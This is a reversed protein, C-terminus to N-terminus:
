SITKHKPWHSEGHNLGKLSDAAARILETCVWFLDHSKVDRKGCLRLIYAPHYLHYIDQEESDYRFNDRATNGLTVVIKPKVLEVVGSLRPSCNEIEEPEPPRNPGAIRDTPRCAVLNTIFYRTGKRRHNLGAEQIMEDLVQGAKGDFVRGSLDETRGPGEGIFLIDAPIKGRGLCHKHAFRGILCIQCAKWEYKHDKWKTM